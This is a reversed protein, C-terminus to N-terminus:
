VNMRNNLVYGLLIQRTDETSPLHLSFQFLVHHGCLLACHVIDQRHPQWKIFVAGPNVNQSEISQILNFQSSNETHHPSLYSYGIGEYNM